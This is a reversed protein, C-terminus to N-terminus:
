VEELEDVNDLFEKIFEEFGVYCYNLMAEDRVRFAFDLSAVEEPVPEGAARAGDVAEALLRLATLMDSDSRRTKAAAVVMAAAAQLHESIM